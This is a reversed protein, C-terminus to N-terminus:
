FTEDYFNYEWKIPKMWVLFFRGFGIKPFSVGAGESM